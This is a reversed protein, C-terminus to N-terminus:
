AKKEKVKPETKSRDSSSDYVFASVRFERSGYNNEIKKIAVVDEGVKFHDAIFKTSHAFGPNSASSFVAVVEKRKLLSNYFEKM